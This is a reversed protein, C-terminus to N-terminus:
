DDLARVSVIEDYRVYEPLEGGELPVWGKGYPGTRTLFQELARDPSYSEHVQVHMTRGDRLRVQLRVARIYAGHRPRAAGEVERVQCPFM